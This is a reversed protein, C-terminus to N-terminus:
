HISIFPVVNCFPQFAWPRLKDKTAVLRSLWWARNENKGDEVVIKWGKRAENSSPPAPYASHTLSANCREHFASAFIAFPSPSTLLKMEIHTDTRRSTRQRKWYKERSRISRISTLVLMSGICKTAIWIRTFAAIVPLAFQKAAYSQRWLGSLLYLRFISSSHATNGDFTTSITWWAIWVICLFHLLSSLRHRSCVFPILYLLTSPGTTKWQKICVFQRGDLRRMWDAYIPASFIWFIWMGVPPSLSFFFALLINSSKQQRSPCLNWDMPLNGFLFHMKNEDDDDDDSEMEDGPISSIARKEYM